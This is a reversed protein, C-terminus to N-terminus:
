KPWNRWPRAWPLADWFRVKDVVGLREALRELNQRAPGDGILWYESEPYERQFRAFAM